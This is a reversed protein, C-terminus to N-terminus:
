QKKKGRGFKRKMTNLVSEVESMKLLKAAIFFAILGSFGGGVLQIFQTAKSEIGLVMESLFSFGGAAVILILTALVTKGVSLAIEKLGIRGMKRRLLIVLFIVNCIGAVSYAMALGGHQMYKILTFSLILNIAVGTVAVIVPKKTDQFAYFARNLIQICGYAFIGISYFYLAIAVNATNEATFKGVEFFFRIFPVGLVVLLASFPIMLFLISRIGYSFDKRFAAIDNAAAERSLTPFVAMAISVAFITIPLQMLRQATNLASLLGSELTSALGTNVFLNVQTAGLSLLVPLMLGVMRKFGENKVNFTFHYRMGVKRLAQAQILLNGLAGAVVGISFATIGYGPFNKEIIGSFAAGVAIIGVNYIVSGVATPTFLKYSQLIGQCIGALAMLVAQLLMIRTLTITLELTAADFGSVYFGVIQPAFFYALTTLILLMVSIVNIVVSTFIWIEDKEGKAIYSSVVPIFAAALAGGVLFTYIADPIKFAANYADTFNNQGIQAYIIVDRFYGLFRSILMSIMVVMASRAVSDEKIGKKKKQNLSPEAQVTKQKSVANLEDNATNEKQIDSM